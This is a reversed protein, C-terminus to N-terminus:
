CMASRFNRKQPILGWYGPCMPRRGTTRPLAGMSSLVRMPFPDRWHDGNASLYVCYKQMKENYILDPAWLYGVPSGAKFDDNYARVQKMSEGDISSRFVADTQEWHILDESRASTLHTGVIYYRGDRDRFISPDHVTVTPQEARHASWDFAATGMDTKEEEIPDAETASPEATIEEKAPGSEGLGGCASLVALLCAAGAALIRRRM